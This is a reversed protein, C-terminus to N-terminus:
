EDHAVLTDEDHAAYLVEGVKALPIMKSYDVDNEKPPLGWKWIGDKHVIYTGCRSCQIWKGTVNKDPETAVSQLERLCCNLLESPDVWIHNPNFAPEHLWDSPLAGGNCLHKDLEAMAEVALTIRRGAQYHNGSQTDVRAERLQLRFKQLLKNPDKKKEAM